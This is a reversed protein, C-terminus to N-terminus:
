YYFGSFDYFIFFLLFHPPSFYLIFMFFLFFVCHVGRTGKCKPIPVIGSHQITVQNLPELSHVIQLLKADKKVVCFWRSRYSLNSSEYVGAKIKKKLMECIQEYLGPPIPIN